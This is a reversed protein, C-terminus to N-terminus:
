VVLQQAPTHTDSLVLPRNEVATQHRRHLYATGSCSVTLAQAGCLFGWFVFCTACADSSVPLGTWLASGCVAPFPRRSAAALRLTPPRVAAPRGLQQDHPASCEAGRWTRERHGAPTQSAHTCGAISASLPRQTNGSLRLIMPSVLYATRSHDRSVLKRICFQMLWRQACVKGYPHM